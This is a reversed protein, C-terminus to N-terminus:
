RSAEREGRLAADLGWPARHTRQAAAMALHLHLYAADRATAADARRHPCRTADAMVSRWACTHGVGLTHILEHAILGPVGAGGLYGADHLRVSGYDIDGGPSYAVSGLGAARLGREVWVLVVDDPGGDLPTTDAARAPRFLRLGLDRELQAAEAWFAASDRATIRQSTYEHDFAVRLPFSGPRWAPVTSGRTGARTPVAHRFFGSPCGACTPAFGEELSVDVTEGAHVGSAVTWRRPVLVVRVEDDWRARPVAAVSPHFARAAPDTADVVVHVSDGRLAAPRAVRFRGAADVEASDAWAAAYVRVRLGAVPAGDAAWVQGSVTQAGAAAAAGCVALAGALIARFIM